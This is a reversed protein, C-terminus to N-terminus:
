QRNDTPMPMASILAHLFGFLKGPQKVQGRRSIDEDDDGCKQHDDGNGQEGSFGSAFQRQRILRLQRRLRVQQGAGPTQREIQFAAHWCHGARFFRHRRFERCVCLKFFGGVLGALAIRELKDMFVPRGGAPRIHGEANLGTVFPNPVIFGHERFNGGTM